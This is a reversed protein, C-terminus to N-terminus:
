SYFVFKINSLFIRGYIEFLYNKTVIFFFLVTVHIIIIKIKSSNSLLYPEWKVSKYFVGVFGGILRCIVFSFLLGARFIVCSSVLWVFTRLISICNWMWVSSFLDHSVVGNVYFYILLFSHALMVSNWLYSQFRTREIILRKM